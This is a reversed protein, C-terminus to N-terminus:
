TATPLLLHVGLLSPEQRVGVPQSVERQTRPGQPCPRSLLLSPSHAFPFDCKCPRPAIVGASLIVPFVESVVRLVKDMAPFSLYCKHTKSVIETKVPKEYKHTSMNLCVEPQKQTLSVM